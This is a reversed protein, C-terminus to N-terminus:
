FMLFWGKRAWDDDNAINDVSQRHFSAVLASKDISIIHLISLYM